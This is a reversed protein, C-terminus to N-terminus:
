TGRYQQLAKEAVLLAFLEGETVHINPLNRVEETYYYGFEQNDYALPLKMRERMFGLDRAISKTSVELEAALETANPFKGRQIAAHIQTIREIPARSQLKAKASPNKSM